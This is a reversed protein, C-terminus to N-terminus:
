EAGRLGMRRLSASFNARAQEPDTPTGESEPRPMVDVGVQRAREQRQLHEKIGMRGRSRGEQSQGEGEIKQQQGTHEGTSVFEAGHAAIWNLQDLPDMNNLLDLIASSLGERAKELHTAFAAELRDAKEAKPKLQQIETARHEALEEWKKEEALKQSQAETHAQELEREHKKRARELREDSRAKIAAEYDKKSAFYRGETGEQEGQRQGANGSEEGPANGTGGDKAQINEETM